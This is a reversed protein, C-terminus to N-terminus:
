ESLFSVIRREAWTFRDRQSPIFGVHGGHRPTELRLHEHKRALEIPFCSASLFPDDLANVLLTPLKIGPLYNLSSSDALYEKASEFGHMPATYKTDFEMFTKIKHLGTLDIAGPFREGKEQLRRKLPKLLYEMYLRKRPDALVASSSALDVPVSLAAAKVIRPSISAGREGLYKLTINGGISVGILVIPGQTAASAHEIVRALDATLGSHYWTLLRNPTGSCGRMNWALVDWGSEALL